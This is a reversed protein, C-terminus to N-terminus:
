FIVESSLERLTGLYLHTTRIDGSKTGMGSPLTKRLM